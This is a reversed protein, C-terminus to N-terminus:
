PIDLVHFIPFSQPFRFLAHSNVKKKLASGSAYPLEWALPGISATAAPRAVAVAVGPGLWM